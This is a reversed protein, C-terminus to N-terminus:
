RGSAPAKAAAVVWDVIKDLTAPDAFMQVGHGAPAEFTEVGPVAGLPVLTRDAYVDPPSAGALTKTEPKRLRVGRYDPGASLLLLFPTKPREAAAVSALNAGISAGGLAIRDDPFGRAKLWAAAAELDGVALPWEGTADFTTYDGAGKPGRKSEDHGRLDVALTGVGKEALRQTFGAWEAKSSGVGHALIMVFGHRRPPRYLAAITWGDKTRFSVKREAGPAAAPKRAPAPAAAAAAALLLAPLMM